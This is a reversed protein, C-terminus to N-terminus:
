GGLITKHQQRVRAYLWNVQKKPKGGDANELLSELRLLLSTYIEVAKNTPIGMFTGDPISDKVLHDSKVFPLTYPDVYIGHEDEGLMGEILNLDKLEPLSPDLIVRPYVGSSELGHATNLAPGFVIGDQHHIKGITVGARLLFGSIAAGVFVNSLGYIVQALEEPKYPLSIVCCDSFSTIQAEGSGAAQLIKSSKLLRPILALQGVKVPDGGADTVHSKWGLVDFFVVLRENYAIPSTLDASEM